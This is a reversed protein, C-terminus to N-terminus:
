LSCRLWMMSSVEIANFLEMQMKTLEVALLRADTGLVYDCATSWRGYGIEDGEKRGFRGDESSPNGSYVKTESDSRHRGLYLSFPHTDITLSSSSHQSQPRGRISVQSRNITSDFDGIIGKNNVLDVVSEDAISMPQAIDSSAQLSWSADLDTVDALRQEFTILDATLHAMFTHRLLLELTERYVSQTQSDAFDGPYRSTWDILSGTIRIPSDISAEGTATGLGV